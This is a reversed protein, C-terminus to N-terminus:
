DEGLIQKFLHAENRLLYSSCFLQQWGECVTQDVFMKQLLENWRGVEQDSAALEEPLAKLEGCPIIKQISQLLKRPHFCQLEYDAKKLSDPPSKRIEKQWDNPAFTNFAALQVIRYADDATLGFAVGREALFNKAPGSAYCGCSEAVELLMTDPYVRLGSLVREMTELARMTEHFLDPWAVREVSSQEISREEWTRINQFIAWCDGGALRGMGETNETSIPNKKHPMISSGTQKKGFPEQYIPRGSRAGLRIDLAIKDLSLVLQYLSAALPAYLERPMIQTAGYFPELGLLALATKELEPDMGTYNGVAGSLKSYRLVSASKDLAEVSVEFGQLWTLCRKGFSQLEAEQGHTRGLMPTHRYRVAMERLVDQIKNGSEFVADCSDGLMSVFASEETDYSTMDKHFHHALEPSLNKRREAVFANLDHKLRKEEELWWAIDIPFSRLASIEDAIKPALRGLDARAQVVALETEQWLALKNENSWIRKIEQNEYREIM